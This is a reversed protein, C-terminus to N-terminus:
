RVASPAATATATAPALHGGNLHAPAASRAACATLLLPLAAALVLVSLGFLTIKKM